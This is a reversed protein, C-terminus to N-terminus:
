KGYLEGQVNWGSQEWQLTTLSLGQIQNFDISFPSIPLTFSVSQKAIGVNSFVPRSINAQVNLPQLLRYLASDELKYSVIDTDRPPMHGLNITQAIKNGDASLDGKPRQSLTAGEARQWSVLAHDQYCTLDTVVWGSSSVPVSKMINKCASLWANPTPSTVLPSTIAKLQEKIKLLAIQESANKKHEQHKYIIITAIIFILFCVFTAIFNLLRSPKVARVPSLDGANGSFELILSLDEFTGTQVTWDDYSNHRSQAIVISNYDGIVDGDPLIAQGDRVAIYWWLKENIKFIGQWPQPYEMAVAAALSYLRKTPHQDVQPCFGAQTLDPIKRFTIWDAGLSYADERREQATPHRDFSRWVFGAVWERGAANIIEPRNM